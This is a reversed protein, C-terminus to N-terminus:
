LTHPGKEMKNKNKLNDDLDASVTISISTQQDTGSFMALAVTWNLVKLFDLMSSLFLPLLPKLINTFDNVAKYHANYDRNQITNKTNANKEFCQINKYRTLQQSVIYDKIAELFIDHLRKKSSTQGDRPM